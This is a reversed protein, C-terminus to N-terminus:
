EGKTPLRRGEIAFVEDKWIYKERRLGQLLGVVQTTEEPTLLEGRLRNCFGCSLVCNDLSYGKTNDLRDLAPGGHNIQMRCYSCRSGHSDWISIYEDLTLDLPLNRRKCEGVLTSLRGKPTLSHKKAYKQYKKKVEASSRYVRQYHMTCFERRSSVKRACGETSCTKNKPVFAQLKLEAAKSSIAGPSRSLKRSLEKASTVSYNYIVFQLEVDTWAKITHGCTKVLGAVVRPGAIVKKVGCDCLCTYLTEGKPGSGDAFDVLLLQNFKKGRHDKNVRRM